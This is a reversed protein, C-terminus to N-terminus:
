GTARVRRIVETEALAEALPTVATDGMLEAFRAEIAEPTTVPEFIGEAVGIQWRAIRGGGASFVEGTVPCRRHALWLVLGSVHEPDLVPSLDGFNGGAMDTRAIPAVANATIGHEAGDVAITRTLGVLGAKASAYGYSRRFGLLGVGSTTNVVRGAGSAALDAWAAKVLNFSGVVHVEAHRLLDAPTTETIPSPGAIGANNVVVDIPGFANRGLTIAREAVEPDAVSGPCAVAAGGAQTIAAVTEAAGDLDNVVVGAGRGALALAHARGLGRGAGTVVVTRGTFDLTTM